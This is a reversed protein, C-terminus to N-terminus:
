YFRFTIAGVKKGCCIRWQPNSQKETKEMSNSEKRYNIEMYIYIYIYIYIYVCVCKVSIKRCLQHLRFVSVAEGASLYSGGVGFLTEQFHSFQMGHHFELESTKLLIADSRMKRAGMIVTILFVLVRWPGMLPNFLDM